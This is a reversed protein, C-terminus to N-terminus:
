YHWSTMIKRKKMCCTGNYKLMKDMPYSGIYSSTIYGNGSHGM